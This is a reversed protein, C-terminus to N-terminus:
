LEIKKDKPIVFLLVLTWIQLVTQVINIVGVIPENKLNIIIYPLGILGMIFLILLLYKIWETGKSILYGIGFVFAVSIVAIFIKIGSNLTDYTWILNGIGM